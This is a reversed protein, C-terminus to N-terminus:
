GRPCEMRAVWLDAALKWDPLCDWGRKANYAYFAASESSAGDVGMDNFYMFVESMMPPNEVTEVAKRACARAPVTTTTTYKNKKVKSQTGEESSIGMEESSIGMEESSIGNEPTVVNVGVLNYSDIVTNRKAKRVMDAFQEQMSRGSIINMEFLDRDILGTEVMCHLSKTVESTIHKLQDRESMIDKAISRALSEISTFKYYYGSAYVRCFINICTILGIAGNASALAEIKESAYFFNTDLPFYGFGDKQHRGM